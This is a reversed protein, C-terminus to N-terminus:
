MEKLFPHKKGPGCGASIKPLFFQLKNYRVVLCTKSFKPSFKGTTGWPQPGAKRTINRDSLGLPLRTFVRSLLYHCHDWAGIVIIGQEGWKCMTIIRLACGTRPADRMRRGVWRVAGITVFMLKVPRKTRLV